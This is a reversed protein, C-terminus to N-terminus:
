IVSHPVLLFASPVAQWTKNKAYENDFHFDLTLSEYTDLVHSQRAESAIVFGTNM